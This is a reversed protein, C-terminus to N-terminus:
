IMKLGLPLSEGFVRKTEKEDLHMKEIVMQRWSEPAKSKELATLVKARLNEDIDLARDDTKRAIMCAAFAILPDKKWDQELMLKLWEQVKEPSLVKNMPVYFLQRAGIRGLAWWTVPPEKKHNKLRSYLQTAGNVKESLPLAELSAFLQVMDEYSKIKLEAMTKRSRLVTPNLYPLIAKAINQQQAENLGGSVRRWIIWWEAWSQNEEQYKLGQQFLPWIQEILWPDIESGTGPRLTYGALNFWLREHAASYLRGKKFEILIKFINRSLFIEWAERPGLLKELEQRLTKIGALDQRTNNGGFVSEIKEKAQTFNGPLERNSTDTAVKGAGFQHTEFALNWQEGADSICRLSFVGIADIKSELRVTILAQEGTQVNDSHELKTVLPPLHHMEESIRAMEGPSPRKDGTSTVLQFQVPTGVRLAFRMPELPVWVDERTGKSLIAVLSDRQDSETILYYSRAAGGEITLFDGKKALGYIAAGYAVSLDPRSNNLRILPKPTWGQLVNSLHQGIRESNFVGGNFLLTDPLVFREGTENLAEQCASQHKILFASIHKIINPDAAYPLGFEVIASRKKEPTAGMEVPKFYGDFVLRDVEAAPLPVQTAGGVLRGGGGLVTVPYSELAEKGLLKEKAIRTQQLLQGLASSRLRKGSALVQQEAYHALALDINDGGLMLHDGVGIRKIAPLGKESTTLSNRDIQLLSFDTTGGGIDVVLILTSKELLNTAQSKSEFLWDYFVAQPEELLLPKHIGAKEAAILTLNRAMDDFSAPITIVVEQNPLPHDTHQFNWAHVLHDLYLAVADVPSIKENEPIDETWPLIPSERDVQDHCLWSKASNVLRGQTRGGLERAWTGIIVKNKGFSDLLPSEWPLCSEEPAIQDDHNLFAFSPLLPLREIKGASVLQDILFLEAQPPRDEYKKQDIFSLACHTTGLDIGIIFRPSPLPSM